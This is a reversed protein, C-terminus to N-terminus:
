VPAGILTQLQEFNSLHYSSFLLGQFSKFYQLLHHVSALHLQRTSSIFQSLGHVALTICSRSITLYLLRGILRRYSSVDDLPKGEFSSLKANPDM